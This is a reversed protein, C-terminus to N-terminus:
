IQMFRKFRSSCHVIAYKITTCARYISYKKVLNFSNRNKSPYEAKKDIKKRIPGFSATRDGTTTAGGKRELGGTWLYELYRVYVVGFVNWNSMNVM